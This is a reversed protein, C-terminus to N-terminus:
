FKKILSDMQTQYYNMNTNFDSKQNFLTSLIDGKGQAWLESNKLVLSCIM